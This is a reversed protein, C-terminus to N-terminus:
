IKTTTKKKYHDPVWRCRCTSDGEKGVRSEESRVPGRNTSDEARLSKWSKSDLRSLHTGQEKRPSRNVMSVGTKLSTSCHESLSKRTRRVLLGQRFTPPQPTCWRSVKRVLEYRSM